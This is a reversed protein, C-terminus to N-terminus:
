ESFTAATPKSKLNPDINFRNPTIELTIDTKQSIYDIHKFIHNILTKKKSYYNVSPDVFIKYSNPSHKTAVKQLANYINFLRHRM